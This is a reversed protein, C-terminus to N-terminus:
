ISHTIHIERKFLNIYKPWRNSGCSWQQCLPFHPLATPVQLIIMIMHWRSRPFRAGRQKMSPHTSTSVQTWSVVFDLILKSNHQASFGVHTWVCVSVCRCMCISATVQHVQFALTASQWQLPSMKMSVSCLSAYLCSRPVRAPHKLASPPSSPIGWESICLHKQGQCLFSLFHAAYFHAPLCCFDFIQWLEVMDITKSAKNVLYFLAASGISLMCEITMETLNFVDIRMHPM